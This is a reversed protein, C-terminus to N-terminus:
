TIKKKKKMKIRSYGCVNKSVVKLAGLAGSDIFYAFPVVVRPNIKLPPTTM